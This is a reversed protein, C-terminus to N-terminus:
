RKSAMSQKLDQDVWCVWYMGESSLSQGFSYAGYVGKLWPQWAVANRFVPMEIQYVRGMLLLNLQNLLAYRKDSDIENRAASQLKDIDPDYFTYKGSADVGWFLNFTGRM